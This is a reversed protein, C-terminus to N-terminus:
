VGRKEPLRQSASPGSEGARAIDPTPETREPSPKSTSAKTTKPNSKSKRIVGAEGDKRGLGSGKSHAPPASHASGASPKSTSAKSPKGTGVLVIGAEKRGRGSEHVPPASHASETDPLAIDTPTGTPASAVSIAASEADPLAIDTPTGTPASAVSIAVIAVVYFTFFHM